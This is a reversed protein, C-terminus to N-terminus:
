RVHDHSPKLLSGRIMVLLPAQGSVPEEQFCAWDNVRQEVEIHSSYKSSKSLFVRM